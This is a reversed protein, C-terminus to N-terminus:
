RVLLMKKTQRELNTSLRYFYLGSAMENGQQDHGDWELRYTGAGQPQDVLVNVLQGALNFVEIKVESREKLNYAITTKPNFPNPYNQDLTFTSPLVSEDRVDTPV